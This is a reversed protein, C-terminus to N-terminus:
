KNAINKNLEKIEGTLSVISKELKDFKDTLHVHRLDAEQKILEIDTANRLSIVETKSLRNMSTILFHMGFAQIIGVLVLIIQIFTM